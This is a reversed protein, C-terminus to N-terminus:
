NPAQPKLTVDNMCACGMSNSYTNPCCDYSFKVGKLPDPMPAQGLKGLKPAKALADMSLYHSKGATPDGATAQNLMVVANNKAAVFGDSVKVLDIGPIKTSHHHVFGVLREFLDSMECSVCVGMVLMIIILIFVLLCINVGIGLVNYKAWLFNSFDNMKSMAVITDIKKSVKSLNM